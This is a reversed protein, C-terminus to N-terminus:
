NVTQCSIGAPHSRRHAELMEIKKGCDVTVLVWIFIWSWDDTTPLNHYKCSLIEYFNFCAIVTYLYNTLTEITIAVNVGPMDIVCYNFIIIIILRVPLRLSINKALFGIFLAFHFLDYFRILWEQRCTLNFTWTAVKM